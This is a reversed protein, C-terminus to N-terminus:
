RVIGGILRGVGAAVSKVSETYDTPAEPGQDSM